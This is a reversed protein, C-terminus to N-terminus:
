LTKELTLLETLTAGEDQRHFNWPFSMLNFVKGTIVYDAKTTYHNPTTADIVLHRARTRSLEKKEKRKKGNKKNNSEILIYM